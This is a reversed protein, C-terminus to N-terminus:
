HSNKRFVDIFQRIQPIPSRPIKAVMKIASIDNIHWKKVDFERQLKTCIVM